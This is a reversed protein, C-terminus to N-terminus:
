KVVNSDCGRDLRASFKENVALEKARRDASCALLLTEDGDFEPVFQMEGGEQSTTWDKETLYQELDRLMQAQRTTLSTSRSCGTVLRRVRFGTGPLRQLNDPRLLGFRQFQSGVRADAAEALDLVASAFPFVGKTTQGARGFFGTAITTVVVTGVTGNEGASGGLLVSPIERAHPTSYCRVEAGGLSTQFDSRLM